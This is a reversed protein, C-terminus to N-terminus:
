PTGPLLRLRRVEPAALADFSWVVPFAEGAFFAALQDDYHPDGPHGSQGGPIVALTREPEAADTVFRMSPGYSVRQEEGRWPGGFALITTASGPVGFPGRGFWRGALPLSSLPHGLTLRHIGAYPWSAVAAGWRRVGEQWASALAREVIARRDERESTRVDDFWAESMRGELLALLRKRTAFRPIGAAEAEDDFTARLLEREVLVFLAAPGEASMEGDWATLAAAARAADGTFGDGLHAVLTRAWLSVADLQLTLLAEPDWDRREVLRERIRDLRFPTDFDQTFWEPREVPLLSNATAIKGVEPDVLVPNEEAPVLGEWGVDSRWGPAPFRGDWGSRRPGRGLPTWLIRGEASAVVLNQAPFVFSAVLAPVEDVSLARALAVFAALQDAPEYGTWALSRPPLGREEDAALFVGRDTRRVEVEVERGAVRVRDTVAAIPVWGDGRRVKTGSEDLEEVFLDVDDIYLNTCAWALAPGRGLVIAPAGPLTMGAADYDPAAIRAQYWVNPLGLGLHPDNALLPHGDASRGSAVSWSNSGLGAAEARAALERPTAPTAAAVAVLEDFIRAEPDIALERAREAGFVRLFGFLEEEPPSLVPSLQRAMVYIVAVSDAPRWPEPRRRLIRLEPPLDGGRAAIWANVGRAYAALLAATEPAAARALREIAGPFDLRRLRLDYDLAREGLLEALRGSAARRTLEMQFLRDNAHLWGLAAMADTASGARIAPVGRADFRVEVEAALGPLGASGTRQPLGSRSVHRAVLLVVALLVGLAVLLIRFLRSRKM